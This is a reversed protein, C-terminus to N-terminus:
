VTTKKVGNRRCRKKKAFTFKMLGCLGFVCILLTQVSSPEYDNIYKSIRTNGRYCLARLIILM